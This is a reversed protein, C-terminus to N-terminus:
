TVLLQTANPPVTNNYKIYLILIHYVFAFYTNTPINCHCLREVNFQWSGHHFNDCGPVQWHRAPQVFTFTRM